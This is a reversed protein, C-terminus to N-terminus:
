SQKEKFVVFYGIDHGYGGTGDGTMAAVELKPNRQLFASLCIGFDHKNVSFYYVNNGYKKPQYTEKAVAVSYDQAHIEREEGEPSCSFLVMAVCLFLILNKM